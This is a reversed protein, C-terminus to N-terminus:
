TLPQSSPILHSTVLEIRTRAELELESESEGSQSEGSQICPNGDSEGSEIRSELGRVQPTSACPLPFLCPIDGGIPNPTQDYSIVAVVNRTRVYCTQPIRVSAM